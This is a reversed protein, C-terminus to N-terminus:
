SPDRRGAGLSDLVSALDTILASHSMDGFDVVGTILGSEDTLANDVTLDAHVVQARLRPWVPAM